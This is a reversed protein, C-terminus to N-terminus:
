VGRFRLVLVKLFLVCSMRQIRRKCVDPPARMPHRCHCAPPPPMRASLFHFPVAQSTHGCLRNLPNTYLAFPVLQSAWAHGPLNTCAVPLPATYCATCCTCAGVQTLLLLFLFRVQHLQPLTSCSLHSRCLPHSSQPSRWMAHFCFFARTPITAARTALRPTHTISLKPWGAQVAQRCQWTACGPWSPM